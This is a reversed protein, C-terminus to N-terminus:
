RVIPIFPVIVTWYICGRIHLSLPLVMSGSKRQSCARYAEHSYFSDILTQTSPLLVFIFFLMFAPVFFFVQGRRTM